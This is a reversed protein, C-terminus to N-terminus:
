HVCSLRVCLDCLDCLIISKCAALGSVSYHSHLRTNFPCILEQRQSRQPRQTLVPRCREPEPPPVPPNPEIGGRLCHASLNISHHAKRCPGFRRQVTLGLFRTKRAVNEPCNVQLDYRALAKRGNDMRWGRGEKTAAEDRQTRAGQAAM